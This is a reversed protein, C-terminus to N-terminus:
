VEPLSRAVPVGVIGLAALALLAPVPGAARIAATIAGVVLLLVGMASNSVAVYATRKDGGGLDVVYTSRGVRTGTHILALLFYTLPHLWRTEALSGVQLLAVYAVVVASAAASATVM